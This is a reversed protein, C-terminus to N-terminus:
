NNSEKRRIKQVVPRKGKKKPFLEAYIEDVSTEKGDLIVTGDATMEYVPEEEMMGETESREVANIAEKVSMVAEKAQNVEHVAKKAEKTSQEVSAVTHKINDHKDNLMSYLFVAEEHNKNIDQLVTDSYENVAMIKENSVRELSREAKEVADSVTENVSDALQEKANKLQEDVMKQIQERQKKEDLGNEKKEPLIFSVIFVIIGGLLFVIQLWNM